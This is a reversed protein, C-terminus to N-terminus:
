TGTVGEVPEIPDIPKLYELIDQFEWHLVIPGDIGQKHGPSFAHHCWRMRHPEVENVQTSLWDLLAQIAQPRDTLRDYLVGHSIWTSDDPELTVGNVVMRDGTFLM